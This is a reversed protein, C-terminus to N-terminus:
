MKDIGCTPIKDKKKSNDEGYPSLHFFENLLSDIDEKEKEIGHAFLGLSSALGDGVNPQNNTACNWSFNSVDSSSNTESFASDFNVNWDNSTQNEDVVYGQNDIVQHPKDSEFVHIENFNIEPSSFEGFSCWDGGTTGDAM